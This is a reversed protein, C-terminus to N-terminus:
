IGINLGTGATAAVLPSISLDTDTPKKRPTIASTTQAGSAPAVSSTTVAYPTISQLAGAQNAQNMSQMLSDIQGMYLQAQEANAAIQANISDILAQNSNNVSEEWEGVPGKAPAAPAAPAAAAPAKAGGTVVGKPLVIPNYTTTGPTYWSGSRPSTGGQAPTTTTSYGAYVTKPQMQLGQLAQLSAIARTTAGNVGMGIPVNGFNTVSQGNPGLNGKNFQNVLSAGLTAGKDVAKAMVQAVSKGTQEAIKLAENKSVNAGAAAIAGGMGGSSSGTSLRAPATITTTRPATNGAPGRDNAVQRGASGSNRNGGSNRNSPM